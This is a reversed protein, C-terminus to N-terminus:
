HKSENADTYNFSAEGVKNGDGDIVSVHWEGTMHPSLTRISWVRWRPGGVNFKSEGMIKGQYEWRHTVIQGGLGQLDSFFYIQQKDNSLTTLTDSPERNQIASTFVARAVHQGAAAATPSAAGSASEEASANFSLLSFPLLVMAAFLSQRRNM